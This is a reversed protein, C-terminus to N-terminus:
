KWEGTRGSRFQGLRYEEGKLRVTIELEGGLAEVVRQLTSVQMDEQQELQSVAPQKVGLKRALEAQTVGELKRLETLLMEAQMKRAQAKAKAVRRAGMKKRLDNISRHGAM